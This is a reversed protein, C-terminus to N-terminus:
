VVGCTKQSSQMTSFFVLITFAAVCTQHNSHRVLVAAWQTQLLFCDQRVLTHPPKDDVLIDLASRLIYMIHM